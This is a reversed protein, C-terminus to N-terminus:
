EVLSGYLEQIGAKDGFHLTRKKTEGETSSGYMTEDSAETIYLDGLGVGHGLEHTAINQLDMVSTDGIETESTEGADGWKYDTDFMIDFEIIERQSPPGRFYGWVICVAIVGEQSYNGFVLENRGDLEEVTDDWSGDNIVQYTDNFLESSTWSDWEEASDYIASTVSGVDLDSGAPDIYYTLNLTKWKVGKALFTYYGEEEGDDNNPGGPGGAWPPKAYDKRHHIFVIKELPGRDPKGAFAISIVPISIIIILAFCILSSLKKNM